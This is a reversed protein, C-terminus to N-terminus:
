SEQIKSGILNWHFEDIEEPTKGKFLDNSQEVNKYLYEYIRYQHNCIHKYQSYWSDNLLETTASSSRSDSSIPSKLRAEVSKGLQLFFPISFRENSGKNVVRHLTSKLKGQSMLQLMDAINVVFTDKIPPVNIWQDKFWVQLGEVEDQLLITLVGHDTHPVLEGTTAPYYICRFMWTSDDFVDQWKEIDKKSSRVTELNIYPQLHQLVKQCLNLCKDSYTKTLQQFESGLEDPYLNNGSKSLWNDSCFNISESATPITTNVQFKSMVGEQIHTRRNAYMSTSSVYGRHFASKEIAYKDKIDKSFSHFQKSKNMLTHTIKLDIEQGQRNDIYFFGHELSAKLMMEGAEPKTLDIIPIISEVNM